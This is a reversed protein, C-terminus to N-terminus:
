EILSILPEACPVWTSMRKHPSMFSIDCASSSPVHLSFAPSGWKSHVCPSLSSRPFTKDEKEHSCTNSGAAQPKVEGWLFEEYEYTKGTSEIFFIFYFFVSWNWPQESRQSIKLLQSINRERLFNLTESDGVKIIRRKLVSSNNIAPPLQTKNGMGLRWMRKIEQKPHHSRCPTVSFFHSFRHTFVTRTPTRLTASGLPKLNELTM